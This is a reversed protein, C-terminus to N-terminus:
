RGGSIQQDRGMELNKPLQSNPTPFQPNPIPRQAHARRAIAAHLGFVGLLVFTWEIPYRYRTDTQVLYYVLPFAMWMGLLLFGLPQRRRVMVWLGYFAMASLPTLVLNKWPQSTYPTFWFYVVRGLTLQAFRHPDSRIWELAEHLRRRNYAVEGESALLQAEARNSYPHRIHFYSSRDNGINDVALVYAHPNNSVSFELGFNSRMFVFAHLAHYNRVTWPTVAILMGVLVVSAHVMAPARPPRTAIVAMTVLLVPLLSPSCMMGLGWAAGLTLSAIPKGRKAQWWHLTFLILAATVTGTLAAEWRLEKLFRYPFAAGVLPAVVGPVVPLQAQRAILAVIAWQLSALVLNVVAVALGAAAGFGFAKFVLSLLFPYAPAHHATAGTPVKYPDAFAGRRALNRAIKELEAFEIDLPVNLIFLMSLRVFLGIALVLLFLHIARM